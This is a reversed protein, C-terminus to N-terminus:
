RFLLWNVGGAMLWMGIMYKWNLRLISRSSVQYRSTMALGVGSLPSCATATGWVSLFLFALQNPNTSVPMLLPSVLSVSVVPHVGILGVLIMLGSAILFITSTFGTAHFIFISPYTHLVAAVGSSFVGAALFLAFQSAVNSLRAEVYNLLTYHRPRGTMFLLAGLPAILSIVTLINLHGVFRHILLVIFALLIPMFLSDRRIPYGKFGDIKSRNVEFFTLIAMPVVLLLGPIVTHQWQAGPAYTMAVGTAVFFPSWYAGSCFGRMIVQVQSDKVIGKRCLRDGVVFVISLNIIAGLLHCSLLTSWFGKKGEPQKQDEHVPNTLSLFSVAVFMTLLPLNRSIAQVYDIDTGKLAGWGLMIVGLTLLAGSQRHSSRSLVPWCFIVAGWAAVIGWLVSLISFKALLFFIATLLILWGAFRNRIAFFQSLLSM